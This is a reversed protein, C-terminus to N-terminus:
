PLRVLRFSDNVTVDQDLCLYEYITMREDEPEGQRYTEFMSTDCYADALLSSTFLEFLIEMNRLPHKAQFPVSGWVSLLGWGTKSLVVEEDKGRELYRLAIPEMQKARIMCKGPKIGGIEFTTHHLIAMLCLTIENSQNRLLNEDFNLHNSKLVGVLDDIIQAQTSLPLNLISGLLYSILEQEKVSLRGALRATKSKKDEPFIGDIRNAFAAKSLSTFGRFIDDDCLKIQAQLHRKLELPFPQTLDVNSPKGSTAELHLNTSLQLTKLCDMTLGINRQDNHALFHGIETFVPYGTSFARLKMFLSDVDTQNFSGNQVQKIIYEVKYKENGSILMEENGEYM